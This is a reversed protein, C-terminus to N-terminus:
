NFVFDISNTTSNYVINASANISYSTANLVGDTAYVNVNSYTQPNAAQSTAGALFLKSTSNTTGATNVTDQQTFTFTAGNQRTATFTTGSRTIDKIAATADGVTTQMTGKATYGSPITTDDTFSNYMTVESSLLPVYVCHWTQSTGVAINNATDNIDIFGDGNTNVLTRINFTSYGNSGLQIIRGDSSHTMTILFTANCVVSGRTCSVSLIGSSGEVGVDPTVKCIRSWTQGQTVANWRKGLNFENNENLSMSKGPYYQTNVWPTFSSSNTLYRRHYLNSEGAVGAVLLQNKYTDNYQILYGYFSVTSDPFDANIINTIGWVGNTLASLDTSATIEGQYTQDGGSSVTAWSADTGDTTLFKGSQGTQDPLSEINSIAVDVYATTAVKTSNDSATPTTSYLYSSADYKAIANATPTYTYPTLSMVLPSLSNTVPVYTADGSYIASQKALTVGNWKTVDTTDPLASVDSATLTVAGTKTNVSTVPYTINNIASDVYGETAMDVSDNDWGDTSSCTVTWESMDFFNSFLFTHTSDYYYTFVFLCGNYDVAIKLNNGSDWADLLEQYTTTGYTAIFWSNNTIANNVFATTAVKTSSDGATPTTSNLMKNVDYLAAAYNTPTSSGTLQYATTATTSVRAPIYVPSGGIASTKDLAIGNWKTVDTSDSLAGVDSATLTVAGTKTNVSTVPFAIDSFTASVNGDTQSLSTITKTTSGTGITGGDLANIANTVTSVTAAKNTTASYTGDFTLTDQKNGLATNLDTQDSLTGTINGWEASTQTNSIVGNTIDIGTGATYTTDTASLVGDSISLNTGVKIGGLTSDSATPLSYTGTPTAWTGKNTLYTTESTGFTISSNTIKSASEDNIVLRDGSAITASSTIDGSNTIDGHTHSTPPMSAPFDSIKSKTISPIDDAVLGRFAPAADTGSAPGALVTNATKASYPNKTDGYGNALSITTDLSTSQSTSTSSQVPSTAQVRVSTVTGQPIVTNDPLAGVDSATLTIDSTLAKNNITRSTQVYGSLDIATGFQEWDTGTWVYESNTDTVIWVDGTTNGTSPLQSATTKTGKFNLVTGLSGLTDDVYKKNAIQGDSSQSSINPVTPTGTFAPSAVPARSTDTPHVHDGRSYTDSVGPTATGDVIPNSTSAPATVVTGTISEGDNRLATNGAILNDTDVTKDTVDILTTGNLTVKSVGM